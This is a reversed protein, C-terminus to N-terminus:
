CWRREQARARGRRSRPHHPDGREAEADFRDRGSTSVQLDELHSSWSRRTAETAAAAVGLVALLNGVALAVILATALSRRKRRGVNRLGIQM